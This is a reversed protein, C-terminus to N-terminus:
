MVPFPSAWDFLPTGTLDYCCPDIFAVDAGIYLQVFDHDKVFNKYDKPAMGRLVECLNVNWM